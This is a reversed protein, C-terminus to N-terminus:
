IPDAIHQDCKWVSAVCVTRSNITRKISSREGAVISFVVNRPICRTSRPSCPERFANPLVVLWLWVSIPGYATGMGCGLDPLWNRWHLGKAQHRLVMVLSILLVRHSNRDSVPSGFFINRCSVVFDFGDFNSQYCILMDNDVLFSLWSQYQAPWDRQNLNLM